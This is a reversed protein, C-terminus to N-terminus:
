KVLELCHDESDSTDRHTLSSIRWGTDFMLEICLMIGCQYRSLPNILAQLPKWYHKKLSQVM